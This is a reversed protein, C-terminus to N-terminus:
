LSELRKSVEDWDVIKWFADVFEGRNNEYDLYYAHEWVDLVMLLQYSPIINVNHKEVQMIVLKDVEKSYALVAWGSGEASKAAQSFEKKFRKFSKFNKEIKDLLKGSPIGGGNPSMNKWYLRHLLQGAVNYSLAKLVAKTDVDKDEKRADDMKKMLNNSNNVYGKHHKDHHIKLIKESIHPELADYSYPLKPLNYKKM